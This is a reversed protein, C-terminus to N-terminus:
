VCFSEINVIGALIANADLFSIAVVYIGPEEVDDVALEVFEVFVKFRKLLDVM